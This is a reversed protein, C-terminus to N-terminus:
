VVEEAEHSQPVRREELKKRFFFFLIAFLVAVTLPFFIMNGLFEMGNVYGLQTDTLNFEVGLQDLIGARIAFTMATVILSICAAVFLQQKNVQKM